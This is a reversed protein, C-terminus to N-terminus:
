ASRASRKVAYACLRTGYLDLADDPDEDYHAAVEYWRDWAYLRAHRRDDDTRAPTDAPRAALWQQWERHAAPDATLEEEPRRTAGARGDRTLAATIYGAPQAPRWGLAMGVLEAAIDHADLGRDILPRLAFALRRLGERQTWGVLPRVQRAVSIDHAVQWPSRHSARVGSGDRKTSRNQRSTYNMGGDLDPTPVDHHPGLSHPARQTPLTAGQHRKDVPQPTARVAGVARTRGEDTLGRLQAGYGTGALRHGMAADYVAPITAAYITATATYARGPLRLNRKTGHRHWALAGLERLVRVHRKVTATSVGCRVATGELDYLVFGLRYDMRLALDRAVALTTGSARPHLGAGVLWTVAPLWTRPRARRAPTADVEQSTRPIRTWAPDPCAPPACRAAAGTTPRM